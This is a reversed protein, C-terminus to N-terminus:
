NHIPKPIINKFKPIDPIVLFCKKYKLNAKEFNEIAKSAVWVQFCVLVKKTYIDSFQILFYFENNIQMKNLNM